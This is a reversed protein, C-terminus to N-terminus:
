EVKEKFGCACSASVFTRDRGKRKSQYLAQEAARVLAGPSGEAQLIQCAIGCSVTIVPAPLGGIKAVDHAIELKKVSERITEALSFAKGAETEPLIVAFEEGGYRAILYAPDNVVEGLVKAIQQLCADGAQYGRTENYVKLYDIDILLISLPLKGTAVKHWEQELYWDFYRRNAIKTLDDLHSLRMLEQNRKQLDLLKKDVTELNLLHSRFYLRYLECRPRIGNEDVKVMGMSDLRYTLMPELVVSSEAKVVEGFADVLEPYHQIATLSIRLHDNYIGAQTHAEKLLQKLTLDGRSISYLALRVLYPHGEVMGMLQQTEKYKWKLGHREALDQVQDVTFDPLKIPLGINFPSPNLSLSVYVETSKVIIVRLRQWLSTQRAEEHWSRLLSFFEVAIKPYEFIRNVENLALVIPTESQGLIYGQIYLTCSLKSGMEEDWYKDLRHPLQLQRSINACFWRLFKDLSIFIAEDAQQFDINVTRYGQEISHALIRALLSSKGTHKPAKIQIISGPKCIEQCVLAEVPPRYVYFPSNLPVPGDPFELSIEAVM